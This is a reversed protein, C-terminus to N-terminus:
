GKVKNLQMGCVGGGQKDRHLLYGVERNMEVRCLLCSWPASTERDSLGPWWVGAKERHGHRQKDTQRKQIVEEVGTLETGPDRM